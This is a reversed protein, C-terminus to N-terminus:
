FIDVTNVAFFYSVHVYSLYNLQIKLFGKWRNNILINPSSVEDKNNYDCRKPRYRSRGEEHTGHRVEPTWVFDPVSGKIKVM